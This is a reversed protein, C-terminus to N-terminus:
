ATATPGTKVKSKAETAELFLRTLFPGDERSVYRGLQVLGFGLAISVVPLSLFLWNRRDADSFQFSEFVRLWALAFLVTIILFAALFICMFVFVIRDMGATLTIATGDGEPALRARLVTQFMNGKLKRLLVLTDTAVGVVQDEKVIAARAKLACEVPSLRTFFGPRSAM